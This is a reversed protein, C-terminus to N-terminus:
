FVRQIGMLHNVIIEYNIVNPPYTRSFDKYPSLMVKTVITSSRMAHYTCSIMSVLFLSFITGRQKITDYYLFTIFSALYLTNIYSSKKRELSNHSILSKIKVNLKYHFM